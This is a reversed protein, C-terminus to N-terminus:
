RLALFSMFALMSTALTAAVTLLLWLIIRVSAIATRTGPSRRKSAAHYHHETELAVAATILAIAVGTISMNQVAQSVSDNSILPTAALPCAVVSIIFLIAAFQKTAFTWRNPQQSSTATSQHANM